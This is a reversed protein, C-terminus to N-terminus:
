AIEARPTYVSFIERCKYTRMQVGNNIVTTDKLFMLSWTIWINMLLLINSYVVTCGCFTTMFFTLPWLACVTHQRKYIFISFYICVCICIYTYSFQTYKHRYLSVCVHLNIKSFSVDIFQLPFFFLSFLSTLSIDTLTDEFLIKVKFIKSISFFFELLFFSFFILCILRNICYIPLISM